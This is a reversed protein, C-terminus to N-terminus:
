WLAFAQHNRLYWMLNDLEVQPIPGKWACGSVIRNIQRFFSPGPQDPRPGVDPGLLGHPSYRLGIYAIYRIDGYVSNGLHRRRLERDIQALHPQFAGRSFFSLGRRSAAFAPAKGPGLTQDRPLCRLASDITAGIVGYM